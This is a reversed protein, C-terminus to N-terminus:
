DFIGKRVILERIKWEWQWGNQTPSVFDFRTAGKSIMPYDVSVISEEGSLVRLEKVGSDNFNAQNGGIIGSTTYFKKGNDDIIFLAWEEFDGMMNRKNQPSFILITDNGKNKISLVLKLRKGRKVVYLPQIHLSTNRGRTEVKLPEREFVIKGDPIPSVLKKAIKGYRTDGHLRSVEEFTQIARQKSGDLLLMLGLALEYQPTKGHKEALGMEKCLVFLVKFKEKGLAKLGEESLQGSLYSWAMDRAKETTPQHLSVSRRLLLAAKDVQGSKLLAGAKKQLLESADTKLERNWTCAQDVVQMVRPLDMKEHRVELLDYIVTGWETKNSDDISNALISLPLVKELGLKKGKVHDLVEKSITKAEEENIAMALKAYEKTDKINGKKMSAVAADRFVSAAQIRLSPDYQVSIEFLRSAKTAEGKDFLAKGETYFETGIEKGKEADLRTARDFSTKASGIEGAAILVKGLAFHLDANDPEQKIGEELVVNAQQYMGAKYYERSKKLSKNECSLNLLVLPLCLVFSLKSTM